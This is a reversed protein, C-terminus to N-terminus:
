PQELISVVFCFDGGSHTRVPQKDTPQWDPGPDRQVVWPEARDRSTPLRDDPWLRKDSLDTLTTVGQNGARHKYRVAAFLPNSPNRAFAYDLAHAMNESIGGLLESRLQIHLVELHLEYDTLGTPWVHPIARSLRRNPGGMRYIMEALTSQMDPTMYTRSADGQGMVWSHRSGYWWLCEALDLRSRRWCYWMLGLLMDRSITSAAVPLNDTGRRFWQGTADRAATIDVDLGAAGYLGTFLLSDGTDAEIFGHRDQVTGALSLYLDRKKALADLEDLSIGQTPWHKHDPVRPFIADLLADPVAVMRAAVNVMIAMGTVVRPHQGLDIAQRKAWETLTTMNLM